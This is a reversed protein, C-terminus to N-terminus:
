KKRRLLGSLAKLRESGSLDRLLREFNDLRINIEGHLQRASSPLGYQALDKGADEAAKLVWEELRPCLVILHNRSSRHHLLKLGYHTFEAELSAETVYPPQSSLPDEDILGISNRVGRLRACVGSKGKFDHIVQRKPIKAGVTLLAVDPFCEVYIM